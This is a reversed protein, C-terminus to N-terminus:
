YLCKSYRYHVLEFTGVIKKKLKKKLSCKMKSTGTLHKPDTSIKRDQKLQRDESFEHNPFKDSVFVTLKYALEMQELKM